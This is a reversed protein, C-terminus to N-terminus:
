LLFHLESILFLTFPFIKLLLLIYMFLKVSWLWDKFLTVAAMDPKIVLTRM